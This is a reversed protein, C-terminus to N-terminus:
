SSGVVVIRAVTGTHRHEISGSAVGCVKPWCQGAQTGPCGRRWALEVFMPLKFPARLQRPIAQAMSDAALPPHDHIQFVVALHEAEVRVSYVAYGMGAFPDKILVGNTGYIDQLQTLTM